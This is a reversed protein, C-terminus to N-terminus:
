PLDRDAIQPGIAEDRADDPRRLAQRGQSLLRGVIALIDQRRFPKILVDNMGAGFFRQRDARSTCGTQCVIPGSFGDARLRSAVEVGDFPDGLKNDLLVLDLRETRAIELASPGTSAVAVRHGETELTVRLLEANALDDEVVLINPM